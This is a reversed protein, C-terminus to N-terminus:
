EDIESQTLMGTKKKLTRIKEKFAVGKDIDEQKGHSHKDLFESYEELTNVLHKLDEVHEGMRLETVAEPNLISKEYEYLADLRKVAEESDQYIVVPVCPKKGRSKYFGILEKYDNIESELELISGTAAIYGFLRLSAGSKSLAESQLQKYHCIEKECEEIRAKYKRINNIIEM